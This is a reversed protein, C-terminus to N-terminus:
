FRRLLELAAFGRHHPDVMLQTAVAVRILRDQFWMPRPMVGLFGIIQDRDNQYVLSPLAPDYWPNEFFVEDFYAQLDPSPTQDSHRFSRLWLRAVEPVDERAFARIRTTKLLM